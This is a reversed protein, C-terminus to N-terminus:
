NLIVSKTMELTLRSIVKPAIPSLLDRWLAQVSSATTTSIVFPPDSLSHDFQCVINM